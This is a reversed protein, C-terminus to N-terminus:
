GYLLGGLSATGVAKVFFQMAYLECRPSAVEAQLGEKVFFFILFSFGLGDICPRGGEDVCAGLREVVRCLLSLASVAAPSSGM